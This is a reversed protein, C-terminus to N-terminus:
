AGNGANRKVQKQDDERPTIELDTNAVAAAAALPIPTNPPPNSVLQAVAGSGEAGSPFVHQWEHKGSRDKPCVLKLFVRKLDASIDWAYVLHFAKEPESEETVAVVAEGVFPPFQITYQRQEYFDARSESGAPPLDEDLPSKLVRAYIMPIELVIGTNAAQGLRYAVETEEEIRTQLGSEDLARKAIYRMTHSFYSKDYPKGAVLPTGLGHWAEKTEELAANLARVVSKSIGDMHALVEDKPTTTSFRSM